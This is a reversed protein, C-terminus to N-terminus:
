SFIPIFVFSRCISYIRYAPQKIMEADAPSSFRDSVHMPFLCFVDRRRPVNIQM